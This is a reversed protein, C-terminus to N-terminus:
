LRRTIRRPESWTGQSAATLGLHRLVLGEWVPQGLERFLALAKQHREVALDFDAQCEAVNGLEHWAMGIGLRYGSEQALAMVEAALTSARMLDNQFVALYAAAWIADVRTQPSSPGPMAVVRELWGRGETVYGLVLWFRALEAGLRQATEADGRGLSWGLAARLNDHDREVQHNATLRGPGEFRVRANQILGVFHAAHADRVGTEEGCATLQELGFERVTDLMAYSPEGWPGDEEKLLSKDVLSAIGEFVDGTPVRAKLVVAEAAALTCGGVFASLLRFLAQESITLLDYSWAIADRMTQQRTPLDRGGATLLPLRTELRALLSAPPLVKIRAAALEIALPLGDLRRCIAAVTAANEPVLRFDERVAQARAVFLRVAECHEVEEVTAPDGQGAVALPPVTHEREGSIRLRVRSTALIKLGQCAGLLEAVLPAAEIVQEFNDLVLLLRKDRLYTTLREMMPEDGADRVGMAQVVAAAVIGPDSIPALNVFWVGDAFADAVNAAVQLALRTKGVGGPGTLTLLRVDERRLPEAVVSLERERGILLTLSTPLHSVAAVPM